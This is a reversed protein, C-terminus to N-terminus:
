APKDKSQDDESSEEELEGDLVRFIWFLENELVPIDPLRGLEETDEKKMKM